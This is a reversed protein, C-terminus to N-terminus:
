EFSISQASDANVAQGEKLLGAKSLLYAVIDYASKEPVRDPNGPPMSSRLFQFLGLATRYRQVAKTAFGARHCGSCYADFAKQGSVTQSEGAPAPADGFSIGAATEASITVDPQILGAKVLLYFVVAYRRTDSVANPNGPPMRGRIYDYLKEATRYGSV